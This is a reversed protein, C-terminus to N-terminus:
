AAPDPEDPLRDGRLIALQEEPTRVPEQANSWGPADDAGWRTVRSRLTEVVPAPLPNYPETMERARPLKSLELVENLAIARPKLMKSIEAVSPWFSFRDVAMRLTDDTWCGAPFDGCAFLVMSLRAILANEDPPNSVACGLKELWNRIKAPDAPRHRTDIVTLNTIM